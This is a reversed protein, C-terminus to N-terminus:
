PPKRRETSPCQQNHSLFPTRGTFLQHTNIQEHSRISQRTARTTVVVEMMRLELLVWFQSMRTGALRPGGPFHGNFGSFSKRLPKNLHTNLLKPLLTMNSIPTWIIHAQLAQTRQVICKSIFNFTSAILIRVTAYGPGLLDAGCSTRERGWRRGEGAWGWGEVRGEQVGDLGGDRRGKGKCKISGRGVGKRVGM